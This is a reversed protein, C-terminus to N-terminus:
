DRGLAKFRAKLWAVRKPQHGATDTDPDLHFTLKNPLTVVGTKLVRRGNAKIWEALSERYTRDEAITWDGKRSSRMKLHVGFRKEPEDGLRDPLPISPYKSPDALLEAMLHAGIVRRAGAMPGKGYKDMFAACYIHLGYRRGPPTAYYLTTVNSWFASYRNFRLKDAESMRALTRVPLSTWAAAMTINGWVTVCAQDGARFGYPGKGDSDMADAPWNLTIEMGAATQRMQMGKKGSPDYLAQFRRGWLAQRIPVRRGAKVKEWWPPRCEKVADRVYAIDKRGAPTLGALDAAPASLAEALREWQGQMYAETVRAHLDGGEAGPAAAALALAASLTTMAFATRM